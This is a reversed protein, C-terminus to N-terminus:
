GQRQPNTSPNEEPTSNEKGRQEEKVEMHGGRDLIMHIHVLVSRYIGRWGMRLELGEIRSGTGSVRM